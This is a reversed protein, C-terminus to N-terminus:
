LVGIKVVFYLRPDPQTIFDADRPPMAQQVGQKFFLAVGPAAAFRVNGAGPFATFDVAVILDQTQDLVYNVPLPQLDQDVDNPLTLPSPLLSTLDGASDWPNGTGAARSIFVRNITVNGAPAGRVKFAVKGGDALLQSGSIRHVFCFNDPVVTQDQPPVTVALATKFTSAVAIGASSASAGFLARVEYTYDTDATLGTDEVETVTEEVEEEREIVTGKKRVFRFGTLDLEMETNEFSVTIRDVNKSTATVVPVGPTINRAKFGCGAFGYLLVIPVLIAPVVLFLVLWEM